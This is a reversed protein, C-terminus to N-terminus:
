KDCLYWNKPWDWTYSNDILLKIKGNAFDETFGVVRKETNVLCVKSGKKIVDGRSEESAKKLSALYNAKERKRKEEILAERKREEQAKKERALSRANRREEVVKSSIYGKENAITIAADYNENKPAAAYFYIKYIFKEPISMYGDVEYFFALKEGDSGKECGGNFVRGDMSHCLEILRNEISEPSKYTVFGKDEIIFVGGKEKIESDLIPLVKNLIDDGGSLSTELIHALKEETPLDKPPPTTPTTTCGSIGLLAYLFFLSKLKM